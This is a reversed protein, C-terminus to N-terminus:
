CMCSNFIPGLQGDNCNGNEAAFWTSTVTYHGNVTVM